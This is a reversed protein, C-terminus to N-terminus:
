KDIYGIQQAFGELQQDVYSRIEADNVEISDLIAHHMYLKDELLKGFLQCRTIDKTSVGSAELQAFQKDIDSDLVVFDGVVAAVGDVKILQTSDFKIEKLEEQKEDQIIEQASSLQTLMLASLSAIISLSKNMFKLNKNKIADNVIENKIQGVLKLKRQNIIIQRLTPLVYEIPAQSGSALVENIQILYLELSDNLQIFNPKKLLVKNFGKQLPKIKSIVQDAKDM